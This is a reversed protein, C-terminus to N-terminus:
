AGSGMEQKTELALAYRNLFRVQIGGKKGISTNVVLDKHSLLHM